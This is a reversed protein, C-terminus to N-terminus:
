PHIKELTRASIAAAATQQLTAGASAEVAALYTGEVLPADAIQLPPLSLGEIAAEFCMAASHFDVMVLIGSVQGLAGLAARIREVSTGLEGDATGGAVVIAVSDNTVQDVFEKIGAALQASHAIVLIGIM